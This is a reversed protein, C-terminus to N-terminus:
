ILDYKSNKFYDTVLGPGLLQIIESENLDSLKRLLSALMRQRDSIIKSRYNSKEPVKIRRSKEDKWYDSDFEM